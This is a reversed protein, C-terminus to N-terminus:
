TKAAKAEEVQSDPALPTRPVLNGPTPNGPQANGASETGVPLGAHFVVQGNQATQMTPNRNDPETKGFVTKAVEALKKMVDDSFLGVLFGIAYAYTNEDGNGKNFTVGLLGTEMVLYTSVSLFIGVFPATLRWVIFDHAWQRGTVAKVYWRIAYIWSGTIGGLGCCLIKKATPHVHGDMKLMLTTVAVAAILVCALYIGEGRIRKWAEEPYASKWIATEAASPPSVPPQVPAMRPSAM